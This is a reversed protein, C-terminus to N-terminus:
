LILSKALVSFDQVQMQEPRLSWWYEPINDNFNLSKLSNKLTKRRQNFATKVVLKLTKYNCNSQKEVTLRKMSLIASNVKPPPNFSNPPVTFHLKVQYYSQALVSTIGYTKSGPTAALREAVEKQFMGILAPIRSKEDLLRFIIQSSINYPFNGVIIFEDPIISLSAKLFDGKLWKREEINFRNQILEILDQDIESIFLNYSAINLLEKTLVGDGPGIELVNGEPFHELIIAMTKEIINQDNLFHQGFHKKHKYPM